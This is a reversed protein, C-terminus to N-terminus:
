PGAEAADAALQDAIAVVWACDREIVLEGLARGITLLLRQVDTSGAHSMGHLVWGAAEAIAEDTVRTDVTVRFTSTVRDLDTM